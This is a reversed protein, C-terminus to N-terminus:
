DVRDRGRTAFTADMLCASMLTVHCVFWRLYCSAVYRARHLALDSLSASEAADYAAQRKVFVIMKPIPRAAMAVNRVVKSKQTIPVVPFLGM